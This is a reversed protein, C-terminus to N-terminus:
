EPGVEKQLVEGDWPTKIGEVERTMLRPVGSESEGLLFVVQVLL